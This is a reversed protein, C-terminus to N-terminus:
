CKNFLSEKEWQINQAGQDFILEWMCTPKERLIAQVDRENLIKKGCPFSAYMLCHMTEKNRNSM